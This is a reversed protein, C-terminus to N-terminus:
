DGPEADPWGLGDPGADVVLLPFAMGAVDHESRKPLGCRDALERSADRRQEITPDIEIVKGYQTVVQQKIKCDLVDAWFQLCRELAPRGIREKADAIRDLSALSPRSGRPNRAAAKRQEREADTLPAGRRRGSQPSGM